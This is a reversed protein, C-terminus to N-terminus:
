KSERIPGADTAPRRAAGLVQAEVRRERPSIMVSVRAKWKAWRPALSLDCFVSGGEVLRFSGVGHLRGTTGFVALKSDAALIVWPPAWSGADTRVVAAAVLGAYQRREAIQTLQPSLMLASSREMPMHAVWGGPDIGAESLAAQLLSLEEDASDLQFPGLDVDEFAGVGHHGAFPLLLRTAASGTRCVSVNYVLTAIEATGPRNLYRVLRPLEALNDDFAAAELIKWELIEPLDTTECLRLLLERRGQSGGSRLARIAAIRDAVPASADDFVRGIARRTLDIGADDSNM